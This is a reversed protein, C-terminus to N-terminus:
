KKKKRKIFWVIGGAIVTLILSAVGVKIPSLKQTVVLLGPKDGEPTIAVTEGKNIKVEIKGEYVGVIDMRKKDDHKVWFHTGRVSSTTYAANVEMSSGATFVGGEVNLEIEGSRLKIDTTIKKNLTAQELGWESITIETFPLVQVVGKNQISLVTTTDMGTFLTAGSPIRDGAKIDKWDNEGPYKIQAQGNLIDLRFPSDSKEPQQKMDGVSTDELVPQRELLEKLERDLREDREQQKKEEWIIVEEDTFFEDTGAKVGAFFDRLDMGTSISRFWEGIFVPSGGLAKKFFNEEDGKSQKNQETTKTKQGTKLADIVNKAGCEAAISAEIEKAAKSLKEVMFDAAAQWDPNYAGSKLLIGTNGEAWGILSLDCAGLKARYEVTSHPGKGWPPGWYFVKGSDGVPLNEVKSPTIGNEESESVDGPPQDFDTDGSLRVLMNSVAIDEDSYSWCEAAYGATSGPKYDFPLTSSITPCDIKVEQPEKALVKSSTTVITLLIVLLIFIPLILKKM